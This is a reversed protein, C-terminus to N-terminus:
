KRDHDLLWDKTLRVGERVQYPLPGAVDELSTLDQMENTIINHLRFSTLPPTSWGIHQALDGAYAAMRLIWRPISLIRRAQFEQQVIDAFERLLLPEYDALYFTKQHVQEKPAELLKHVQYVSNLVFGWQKYTLVGGPHVYLGKRITEFFNKYPVDFWPGWISTPRVIVWTAESLDNSRVIQETRVKSMGYLTNPCYDQDNKPSYGIKCVLQSSTFIARKVSASQKVADVINQVGEINAAYGELNEKEGLDTRAAFHLVFAPQFDRFLRHLAQYDLIDVKQWVSQHQLNRPSRLDINQVSWGKKLYYEVLSTGIFGSGGTILIRKKATSM